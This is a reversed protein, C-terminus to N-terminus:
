SVQDLNCGDEMEGNMRAPKIYSEERARLLKNQNHKVCDIEVQKQSLEAGLQENQRALQALNCKLDSNQQLLEALLANSTTEGGEKSQAQFRAHLDM